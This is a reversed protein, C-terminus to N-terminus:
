VSILGSVVWVKAIFNVISQSSPGEILDLDLLILLAEDIVQDGRELNFRFFGALQHVVDEVDVRNVIDILRERKHLVTSEVRSSM